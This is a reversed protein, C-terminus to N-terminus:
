QQFQSSKQIIDKEWRKLLTSKVNDFFSCMSVQQAAGEEEYTESLHNILLCYEKVIIHCYIDLPRIMSELWTGSAKLQQM